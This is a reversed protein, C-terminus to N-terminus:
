ANIGFREELVTALLTLQKEAYDVESKVVNVIGVKLEEDDFSSLLSNAEKIVTCLEDASSLIAAIAATKARDIEIQDLPTPNIMDM